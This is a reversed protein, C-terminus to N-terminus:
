FRGAAVITWTDTYDSAAAQVSSVRARGYITLTDGTTTGDCAAISQFTTSLTGGSTENGAYEAGLTASQSVTGSGEANDVSIHADLLYGYNQGLESPSGDISGITPVSAGTSVSTLSATASKLWAVWGNDANTAVTVNVGLTSSIHSGDLPTTFSDSNGSFSTSFIPPVVANITVQDNSIISVAYNSIDMQVGGSAETIITGMQNTGVNGTTLTSSLSFKFCYLNGPTLDGSPFTVIQGTVDTATGIGPWAVAGSPLDSVTTTWNAASQNVTFGSPFIIKVDNETASGAPDSCVIGGTDTMAKLRDLRVYAQTMNTPIFTNVIYEEVLFDSSQLGPASAYVDLSSDALVTIPGTYESYGDLAGLGFISIHASQSQTKLSANTIIRYYIVAGPTETQLTVTQVSKYYGGAPSAVPKSVKFLYTASGVSSNSYNYKTAIAKITQNSSVTVPNEYVTSSETPTSGDTTYHVTAGSTASAIVVQQESSYSGGEPSFTPTAAQPLNIVYAESMVDSNTYGSAIAVAKITQSTQVAIPQSYVASSGTPTSGDTTYHIAADQTLTSLTINQISAYTGGASSAVPKEAKYALQYASYLNLRKGSLVKAADSPNPLMDGATILDNKVQAVSLAPNKSELLAAAGAVIPAAFSTGNVYAYSTTSNYWTTLISQGPAALDVSTAGYSSFSALADTSNTAAVSIINPSTYSAPYTPNIDNNSTTNGAAAVFIGGFNEIADKELQSYSPGGYSANIIKAGNNKAFSIARLESFTDLGFRLAMIQINNRYSIGSVGISNQSRAGFSGSVWTGHPGIDNNNADLWVEGMPNNDGDKYDWGHNPCGGAIASGYEDVCGASGDWMNTLLDQHDYHVGTDIVAVVVKADNTSETDWVTSAKIKSLHWQSSFGPDNPTTVAPFRQYNPEAYEVNPDNKLSNISDATSAVGQVLRANLDKIEDIRELNRAKELSDAKNEGSASSLNVANRKYKVIVQGEIFKPSGSQEFLLVKGAPLVGAARGDDRSTNGFLIDKVSRSKKEVGDDIRVPESDLAPIQAERAISSSQQGGSSQSSNQDSDAYFVLARDPIKNSFFLFAAVFFTVGFTGVMVFASFRRQRIKRDPLNKKPNLPCM